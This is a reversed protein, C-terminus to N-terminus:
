GTKGYMFIITCYDGKTNSMVVLSCKDVKDNKLNLDFKSNNRWKSMCFDTFKSETVKKNRLEEGYIMNEATFTMKGKYKAEMAKKDKKYDNLYLKEKLLSLNITNELISDFEKNAVLPKLKVQNRYSNINKLLDIEFAKNRGLCKVEAPAEKKKPNKSKTKTKPNGKNNVHKKAPSLKEARKQSILSLILCYANLM